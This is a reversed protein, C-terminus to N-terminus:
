STMELIDYDEKGGRVEYCVYSIKCLNIKM